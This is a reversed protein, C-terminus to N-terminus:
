WRSARVPRPPRASALGGSMTPRRMRETMLQPTSVSRRSRRSTSSIKMLPPSTQYWSEAPRRRLMSSGVVSPSSRWITLRRSRVAPLVTSWRTGMTCVWTRPPRARRPTTMGGMESAKDAVMRLYVRRLSVRSTSTSHPESVRWAANSSSATTAMRLPTNTHPGMAAPLVAM